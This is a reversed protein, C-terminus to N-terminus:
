RTIISEPVGFECVISAASSPANGGGNRAPTAEVWKTFYDIGVILFKRQAPAIPFPGLIDLGWRAFPWPSQLAQLEVHPQHSVSGHVQCNECKRVFDMADSRMTPWYYGQRMIKFALNKGGIHSGCIGLHVEQLAYEAEEPTLCKLYPASYGRRYLRDDIVTYWGASKRVKGAEASDEPLVGSTLYRLYATMWTDNGSVQM